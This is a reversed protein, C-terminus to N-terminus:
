KRFKATSTLTVSECIECWAAFILLAVDQTKKVQAMFKHKLHIILEFVGM